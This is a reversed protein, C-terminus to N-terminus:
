PNRRPKVLPCIGLVQDCLHERDSTAPELNHRDLAEAHQPGSGRVRPSKLNVRQRSRDLRNPTRLRPVKVPYRAM